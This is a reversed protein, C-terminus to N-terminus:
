LNRLRLTETLRSATPQGRSTSSAVVDVTVQDAQSVDANNYTFVLSRVNEGLKTTGSHRASAADADILRYAATGSAYFAAYDDHGSILVGSADISPLELVLAGASSGYTGESFTHTALIRDAPLVLDEVAHIVSGAADGAGKAAQQYDYLSSFAGFLNALAALMAAAIAITIITEVLTLGCWRFDQMNM